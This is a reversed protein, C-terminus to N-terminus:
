FLGDNGPLPTMETCAGFGCENELGFENTRILRGSYSRRVRLGAVAPRFVLNLLWCDTLFPPRYRIVRYLGRVLVFGERM